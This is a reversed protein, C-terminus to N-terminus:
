QIYDRLRTTKVTNSWGLNDDLDKKLAALGIGSAGAARIQEVIEPLPTTTDGVFNVTHRFKQGSSSLFERPDSWDYVRPVFSSVHVAPANQTPEFSASELAVLMDKGGASLGPRLRLLPAVDDRQCFLSLAGPKPNDGGHVVRKFRADLAYFMAVGSSSLIEKRVPEQERIFQALAMAVDRASLEALQGEPVAAASSGTIAADSTGEVAHLVAIGDGDVGYRILPAVDEHACFKTLAPQKKGVGSRVVAQYRADQAYFQAITTAPISTRDGDRRQVTSGNHSPIPGARIFAALALAVERRSLSGPGPPTAACNAATTTGTRAPPASPFSGPPNYAPVIRPLSAGSIASPLGLNPNQVPALHSTRRSMGEDQASPPAGEADNAARRQRRLDRLREINLRKNQGDGEESARGALPEWDMEESAKGETANEREFQTQAAALMATREREFQAQAADHLERQEREYQAQAAQLEDGPPPPPPQKKKKPIPAPQLTTEPPMGMPLMGMPPPPMGTPPAAMAGHGGEAIATPPPTCGAAAAGLAAAVVNRAMAAGAASRGTATVTGSSELLFACWHMMSTVAERARADDADRAARQLVSIYAQDIANWELTGGRGGFSAGSFFEKCARIHRAPHSM